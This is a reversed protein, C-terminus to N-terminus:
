IEFIEKVRSDVVSDDNKRNNINDLITKSYFIGNLYEELTNATKAKANAMNSYQRVRNRIDQSANDLDTFLEDGKYEPKRFNDVGYKLYNNYYRHIYDGLGRAM